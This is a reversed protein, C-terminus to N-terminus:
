GAVGEGSGGRQDASAASGSEHHDGQAAGKTRHDGHTATRYEDRYKEPEWSDSMSEILAQAMKLEKDSVATTSGNKLVDASLIESAFHM